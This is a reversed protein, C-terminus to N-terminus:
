YLISFCPSNIPVSSRTIDLLLKLDTGDTTILFNLLQYLLSNVNSCDFEQYLENQLCIIFFEMKCCLYFSTSLDECSCNANILSLITEITCNLLVEVIRRNSPDCTFNELQTINLTCQLNPCTSDTSMEVDTLSNNLCQIIKGVNEDSQAEGTGLFVIGFIFLVLLGKSMM